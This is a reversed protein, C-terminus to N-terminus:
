NVLTREVRQDGQKEIKERWSSWVPKGDSGWGKLAIDHRAFKFAFYFGLDFARAGTFATGWSWSDNDTNNV